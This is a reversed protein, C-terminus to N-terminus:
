PCPPHYSLDPSVYQAWMAPTLTNTTTACIRQIAQDVDMEWLRVTQDGGGTALTHGNPSFAVADVYNTHGTLPRGLPTPHTPDAANWLRVTRDGSGTALTHGDPSFAVADVSGTHGTLPRLPTPHTPDTVDWLRVTRDTSGSALTHGDPSFAVTNVFDTHGTLPQGLPAPHVPDAVNWLRATRDASGSALIRGDPGFAVAGVSDTHGTLASLPTPHTLDTLGQEYVVHHGASIRPAISQLDTPQHRGLNSDKVRWVLLFLGQGAIVPSPNRRPTVTPTGTAARQVGNTVAADPVSKARGTAPPSSRSAGRERM